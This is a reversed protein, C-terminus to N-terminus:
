SSCTPFVRGIINYFVVNKCLAELTVSANSHRLNINQLLIENCPFHSSCDLKLAVKSNSTGTINNYVVNSIQVASAQERCANLEQHQPRDCYNQDIIIPHRVNQM